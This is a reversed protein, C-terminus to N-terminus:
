TQVPNSIMGKCMQKGNLLFSAIKKFAGDLGVLLSGAKIVEGAWLLSGASGNRINTATHLSHESAKTEEDLGNNGALAGDLVQCLVQCVGSLVVGERIGGLEGGGCLCWQVM